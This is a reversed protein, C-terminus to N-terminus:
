IWLLSPEPFMPPELLSNALLRSTNLRDAVILDAANLSPSQTSMIVLHRDQDKLAAAQNGKSPHNWALAAAALLLTVATAGM